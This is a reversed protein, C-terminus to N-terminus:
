LYSCHRHMRGLFLERHSCHLPLNVDPLNLSPVHHSHEVSLHRPAPAVEALYRGLVVRGVFVELAHGVRGASVVEESSALTLVEIYEVDAVAHEQGFNGEGAVPIDLPNDVFKVRFKDLISDGGILKLQLCM